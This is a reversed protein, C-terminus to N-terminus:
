KGCVDDYKLTTRNLEVNEGWNLVKLM